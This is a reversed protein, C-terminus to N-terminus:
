VFATHMQTVVCVLWVIAGISADFINKCLINHTNKSQVTGVELLAFGAQMWFVLIAAAALL